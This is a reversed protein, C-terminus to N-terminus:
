ATAPPAKEAGSEVIRASLYTIFTDLFADAGGIDEASYRYELGQKMQSSRRTQVIKIYELFNQVAQLIHADKFIGQDRALQINGSIITWWTGRCKYREYNPDGPKLIGKPIEDIYSHRYFIFKNLYDQLIKIEPSEIHSPALSPTEPKNAYKEKIQALREPSAAKISSASFM